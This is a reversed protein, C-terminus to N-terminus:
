LAPRGSILHRWQSRGTFILQSSEPPQRHTSVIIKDGQFGIVLCIREPCLGASQLNKITHELIPKGGIPMMVKPINNANLRTGKGASLIVAACDNEFM